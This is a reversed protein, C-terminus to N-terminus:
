KRGATLTKFFDTHPFKQARVDKLLCNVMEILQVKQQSNNQKWYLSALREYFCFMQFYLEGLLSLIGNVRVVM